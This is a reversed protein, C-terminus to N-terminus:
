VPSVEIMHECIKMSSQIRGRARKLDNLVEIIRESIVPKLQEGTESKEPSDVAAIALSDDVSDFEKGCSGTKTKSPEDSYIKSASINSATSGRANPNEEESHSIENIGKSNRPLPPVEILTKPEDENCIESSISAESNVMTSSLNLSELKKKLLQLKKEARAKMQIQKTIQKELESSRKDMVEAEEKALLSAHREALLRRRLCEMTKSVEGGEVMKNGSWKIDMKTYPSM